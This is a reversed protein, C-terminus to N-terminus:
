DTLTERVLAGLNRKLRALVRESVVRYVGKFSDEFARAEVIAPMQRLRVGLIPNGLQDLHRRLAPSDPADFCLAFIDRRDVLRFPQLKLAILLERTAVRCRVAPAGFAARVAREESNKALYGQAMWVGVKRDQVGGVLLDVRGGSPHRWLEFAGAYDGGQLRRSRSLAFGSAELLARAPPAKRGDIVLDLDVSTRGFAFSSIAYGGILVAGVEASTLLTLAAVSAAEAAAADPM